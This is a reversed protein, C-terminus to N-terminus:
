QKLCKDIRKNEYDSVLKWALTYAENIQKETVNKESLLLDVQSSNQFAIEIVESVIDIPELDNM